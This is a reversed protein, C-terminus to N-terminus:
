RRLCEDYLREVESIYRPIGFRQRVSARALKGMRSLTESDMGEVARIAIAISEPDSSPLLWGTVDQEIIESSGGVFTSIAPIAADMAELLSISLGESLSPQLFV